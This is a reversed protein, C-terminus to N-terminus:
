KDKRSSRSGLRGEARQLTMQDRVRQREADSWSRKPIKGQANLASMRESIIQRQEPALPKRNSTLQRGREPLNEWTESRWTKIGLRGEQHGRKAAESCRLRGEPTMGKPRRVVKGLNFLNEAREAHFAERLELQEGVCVELVEFAFNAEGFINWAFQLVKNVCINERLTRRHHKFRQEIDVASGVYVYGSTCCRIGYVGCIKQRRM